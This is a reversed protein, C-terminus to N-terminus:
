DEVRLESWLEGHNGRTCRRLAANDCEVALKLLMVPRIEGSIDHRSRAYTRIYNDTLGLYIGPGRSVPSEWLVDRGRGIFRQAFRDASQAALEMMSLSRGGKVKEGVKGAMGAAATGPRASYNFVHMAAFEMNKCFDYSQEFEADSEGPFGVIIDTTVAVDPLLQRIDDVAKKFGATDYRRHMRKLVADSGSQLALHFHRAMRKDQWLELLAGSIHQPQLSSLHIRPIGSENLLRRILGSLDIDGDHYSGIETGTLVVERYGDKERAQAERVITDAAVCSVSPRVLPVICYSCFNRCGDQIKIFSRVRGGQVAKKSVARSGATVLNNIMAPINEKDRNGVVLDAGCDRL